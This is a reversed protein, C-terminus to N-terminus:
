SLIENLAKLIDLGGTYTKRNKDKVIVVSPTSKIKDGNMLPNYYNRFIERADEKDVKYPVGKSKLINLTGNQNTKAAAAQFLIERVKIATELNNGSEFWAYLFVESYDLSGAHIPVDVFRIKAVNKLKRLTNNIKEDAKRCAPCLYDSYVIIEIQSKDNGFGPYQAEKAYSPVISGNFFFSTFVAGCLILLIVVWKKLFRAVLFFMTLFFFGSILCKPCYTNNQVQFKIFVFEAGVGMAVIAAIAKMIWDRPYIIKYFLASLFLMSYFIIGFTELDFGLIDGHLFACNTKCIQGIIITILALAPFIWVRSQFSLIFDRM